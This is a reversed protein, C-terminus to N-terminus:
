LKLGDRIVQERWAHESTVILQRTQDVTLPGTQPDRAQMTYTMTFAPWLRAVPPAQAETSRSLWWAAGGALLLGGLVAGGLLAAYRRPWHRLFRVLTGTQSM